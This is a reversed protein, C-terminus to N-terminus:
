HHDFARRQVVRLPAPEAIKANQVHLLDEAARTPRPEVRAALTHDNGFVFLQRVVQAHQGRGRRDLRLEHLVQRVVQVGLEHEPRDRVNLLARPPQPVAVQVRAHALVGERVRQAPFIHPEVGLESFVSGLQDAFGRPLKVARLHRAEVFPGALQVLGLASADRGMEVDFHLAHLREVRVQPRVHLHGVYQVHHRVRILELGDRGALILHGLELRKSVVALARARDFDGFGRHRVPDPFHVQQELHVYAAHPAFRKREDGVPRVDRLVRGSDAAREVLEAQAPPPRAQRLRHEREGFGDVQAHPRVLVRQPLELVRPRQTRVNQELQLVFSGGHVPQPVHGRRLDAGHEPEVGIEPRAYSPADLRQRVERQLSRHLRDRARHEPDGHKEGRLEGPDVPVVAARLPPEQPDLVRDVLVDVVRLRERHRLPRVALARLSDGERHRNELGRRRLVEQARRAFGPEPALREM